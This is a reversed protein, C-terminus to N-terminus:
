SIVIMNLNKSLGIVMANAKKIFTMLLMRNDKEM